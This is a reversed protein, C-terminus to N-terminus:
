GYKLPWAKVPNGQGDRIELRPALPEGDRYLIVGRGSATLFAPKIVVSGRRQRLDLKASLPEFPGDLNKGEDVEFDRLMISLWWTVDDKRREMVAEARLYSGPELYVKGKEPLCVAWTKSDWSANFKTLQGPVSMEVFGENRVFEFRVSPKGNAVSLGSKGLRAVMSGFHVSETKGMTISPLTVFPEQGPVWVVWCDQEMKRFTGVYAGFAEIGWHFPFRINLSLPTSLPEKGIRFNGPLDRVDFEFGRVRYRGMPVGSYLEKDTLHNNGDLDVFLDAVDQGTRICIHCETEGLYLKAWALNGEPGKVGAPAADLPECRILSNGQLSIPRHGPLTKLELAVEEALLASSALVVFASTAFLNRM